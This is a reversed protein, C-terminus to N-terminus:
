PNKVGGEVLSLLEALHEAHATLQRIRAIAAAVQREADAIFSEERPSRQGYEPANDLLGSAKAQYEGMRRRLGEQEQRASEIADLISQRVMNLREQDTAADRLPNRTRFLAGFLPTSAM